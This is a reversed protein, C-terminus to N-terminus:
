EIYPRSFWPDGCEEAPTLELNTFGHEKVFDRFKESVVIAGPLGIPSFIDAGDWTDLDLITKEYSEITGIRCVSCTPEGYYTIQSLVPDIVTKGYVIKVHYYQPPESSTKRKHRIKVVEVPRFEEIGKLGSKQYLDKFRESVLFPHTLGFAFDGYKPKSLEVQLPSLWELSTLAGGCEPCDEGSGYKPNFKETYAYQDDKFLSNTEVFFKM